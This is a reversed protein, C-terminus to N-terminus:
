EVLLTGRNAQNFDDFFDYRGPKLPGVRLIAEGNAAVVKEVKLAHSEFEMAAADRNTVHIVIRNNTPAHIEAPEFHKDKVAIEVTAYQAQAVGAGLLAVVVALGATGMRVFAPARRM